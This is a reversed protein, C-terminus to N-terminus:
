VGVADGVPDAGDGQGDGEGECEGVQSCVRLPAAEAERAARLVSEGRAPPPVPVALETPLALPVVERGGEPVARKAVADVEPHRDAEGEAARPAAAPPATPAPV